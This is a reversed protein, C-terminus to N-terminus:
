QQQQQQQQLVRLQQVRGEDYDRQCEREMAVKEEFTLKKM